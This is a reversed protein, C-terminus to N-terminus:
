VTIIVPGPSDGGFPDGPVPEATITISVVAFVNFITDSVNEPNVAPVVADWMWQQVAEGPVPVAPTAVCVGDNEPKGSPTVDPEYEIIKSIVWDEEHFGANM